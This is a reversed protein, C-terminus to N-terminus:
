HFPIDRTYSADVTNWSLTDAGISAKEIYYAPASKSSGASFRYFYVDNETTFAYSIMGEEPAPLFALLNCALDYIYLGHEEANESKDSYLYMYRDDYIGAGVPMEESAKLLIPESETDKMCYFGDHLNNWYISGNCVGIWALDSVSTSYLAVSRAKSVQYGLVHALGASDTGVVFVWEPTTKWLTLSEYASGEFIRSLSGAPEGLYIDQSRLQVAFAEGCLQYAGVDSESNLPLSSLDNVPTYSGYNELRYLALQGNEPAFLSYLGDAGAYISTVGEWRDKINQMQRTDDVCRLVTAGNIIYTSDELCAYAGSRVIYANYENFFPDVSTASHLPLTVPLLIALVLCAAAALIAIWKKSSPKKRAAAEEVYSDDMKGILELLLESTM